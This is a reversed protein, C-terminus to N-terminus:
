KKKGTMKMKDKKPVNTKGATGGHNNMWKTGAPHVHGSSSKSYDREKGDAAYVTRRERKQSMESKQLLTNNLKKFIVITALFFSSSDQLIQIVFLGWKPRGYIKM